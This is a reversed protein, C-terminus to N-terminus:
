WVCSLLWVTNNCVIPDPRFILTVTPYRQEMVENGPRSRDIRGPLCLGETLVKRSMQPFRNPLQQEYAIHAQCICSGSVWGGDGEDM